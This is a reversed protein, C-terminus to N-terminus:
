GAAGAAETMELRADELATGGRAPDWGFGRIVEDPDITTAPASKTRSFAAKADAVPWATCVTRPAAGSTSAGPAKSTTVPWGVATTNSTTAPLPVLARVAVAIAATLTANGSVRTNTTPGNLAFSRLLAPATFPAAADAPTVNRSGTASWQLVASTEAVSLMASRSVTACANPWAKPHARVM